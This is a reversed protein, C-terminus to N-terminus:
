FRRYKKVSKPPVPQGVVPSAANNASVTIAFASIVPILALLTMMIKAAAKKM